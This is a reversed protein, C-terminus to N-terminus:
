RKAMKDLFEKPRYVPIKSFLFDKINNTVICDAEIAQASYYQMADEFDKAHLAVAQQVVSNDVATVEALELLTDLVSYIQEGPFKQRTIYAINSFSLASVYVEYVKGYGMALISEAVDAGERNLYYDLLVNTDLFVKMM